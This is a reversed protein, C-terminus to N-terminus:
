RRIEGPKGLRDGAACVVSGIQRDPPYLLRAGHDATSEAKEEEDVDQDPDVDGEGLVVDAYAQDLEDEGGEQGDEQPGQDEEPDVEV